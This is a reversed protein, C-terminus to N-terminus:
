QACPSGTDAFLNELQNMSALRLMQDPAKQFEIQVGEKVAQSVWDVCLAVGASDIGDVDSLDVRVQRGSYQSFDISHCLAKVTDFKLSGRIFVMGDARQDIQAPQM